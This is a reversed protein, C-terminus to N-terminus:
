QWADNMASRAARAWVQEGSLGEVDRLVLGKQMVM